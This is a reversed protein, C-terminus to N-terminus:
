DREHYWCVGERMPSIFAQYRGDERPLEFDLRVPAAEGPKVDQETPWREGDVVLTGTEADYLQYGIAFGEAARWTEGSENRVLCEVHARHTEPDVTANLLM